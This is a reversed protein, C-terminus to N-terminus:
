VLVVKGLQASGVPIQDSLVLGAVPLVMGLNAALAVEARVADVVALEGFGGKHDGPFDVQPPEPLTPLGLVERVEPRGVNEQYFLRDPSMSGAVVLRIRQSPHWLPWVSQHDDLLFVAAALLRFHWPRM